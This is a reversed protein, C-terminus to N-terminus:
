VGARLEHLRLHDEIEGGQAAKEVASGTQEVVDPEVGPKRQQAVLAHGVPRAPEGAAHQSVHGMAPDGEAVPELECCFQRGFQCGDSADICKVNIREAGGNLRAV